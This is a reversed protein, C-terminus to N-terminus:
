RQIYAGSGVPRIGVTLRLGVWFTFNNKRLGNLSSNTSNPTWTSLALTSFRQGTKSEERILNKPPGTKSLGWFSCAQMKLGPYMEGKNRPKKHAGRFITKECSLRTM